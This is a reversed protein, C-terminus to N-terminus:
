DPRAVVLNTKCSGDRFDRAEFLVPIESHERQTTVFNSMFNSRAVPLREINQEEMKAAFARVRM